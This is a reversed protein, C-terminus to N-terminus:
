DFVGDLWVAGLSVFSGTRLAATVELDVGRLSAEAATIVIPFTGLAADGPRTDLQMDRYVYDILAATTRLRGAAHTAKLGPEVANLRESDFPPQVSSTNFGGPKHGRALSVYYLRGDRPALEVGLEPTVARWTRAEQQTTVAAGAASTVTRVLDIRRTDENFRVGARARWRGIRYGAEGFVARSTTDIEADPYSRTGSIPLHTDLIQRGDEELFF